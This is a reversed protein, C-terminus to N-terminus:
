AEPRQLAELAAEAERAEAERGLERYARILLPYVDAPPLSSELM